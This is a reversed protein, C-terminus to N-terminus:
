FLRQQCDHAVMHTLLQVQTKLSCTSKGRNGKWVICVSLLEGRCEEWGGAKEEGEMERWFHVPRGPIDVSCLMVLYLLVLVLYLGEFWPSTLHGLLLFPTKFTPLLTLSVEGEVAPPCVSTYLVWCLDMCARRNHELLFLHKLWQSM